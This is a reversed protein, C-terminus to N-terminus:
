MRRPRVLCAVVPLDAEDDVNLRLEDRIDVVLFAVLHLRRPVVQAELEVERLCVLDKDNGDVIAELGEGLRLLRLDRAPELM